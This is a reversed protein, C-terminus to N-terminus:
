KTEEVEVPIAVGLKKELENQFWKEVLNCLWKINPYIIALNTLCSSATAFAFMITWGLAAFKLAYLDQGSTQGYAILCLGYFAKLAMPLLSLGINVALGIGLTKSMFQGKSLRLRVALGTDIFVFLLLISSMSVATTVNLLEIIKDL